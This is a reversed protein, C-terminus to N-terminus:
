RSELLLNYHGLAEQTRGVEAYLRALIAHLATNRPDAGLAMQTEAISDEYLGYSFFASARALYLASETKIKEGAIGELDAALHEEEKPSLIEFFAATSRIPPFKLPDTTELTWSYTMQPILPRADPPYALSTKEKVTCEWHIWDEDYLTLKLEEAPDGSKWRFAISSRLVKTQCPSELELDDPKDVSRLMALSTTGERDKLKLFDQVRKFSKEEHEPNSMSSKERPGKIHMDSGAGVHIWSGNAFHIEVEGGSGTRVIDGDELPLGFSGSVEDGGAKVVVVDGNCSLLVAVPNEARISLPVAAILLTIVTAFIIKTSM